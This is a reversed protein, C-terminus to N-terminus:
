GEIAFLTESIIEALTRPEGNPRSADKIRRSLIAGEAAAQRVLRLERAVIELREDILKGLLIDRMMEVVHVPLVRPAVTKNLALDIVYNVDREWRDLSSPKPKPNDM